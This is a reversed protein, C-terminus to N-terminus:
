SGPVTGSSRPVRAFQVELIDFEGDIITVERRIQFYSFGIGHRRSFRYAGYLAPVADTKPLGLSGEADLFIDIGTAKDEFKANTDFAAYIFGVGLGFQNKASKWKADAWEDTMQATVEPPCLLGVLALALGIRALRTRIKKVEDPTSQLRDQV